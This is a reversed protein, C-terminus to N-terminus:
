TKKYPNFNSWHSVLVKKKFFFSCLKKKCRVNPPKLRITWVESHQNISQFGHISMSYFYTIVEWRNEQDNVIMLDYFKSGFYFWWIKYIHLDKRPGRFKKKFFVMNEEHNYINQCQIKHLLILLRGYKLHIIRGCNHVKMTWCCSYFDM